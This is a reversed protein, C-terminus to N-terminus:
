NSFKKLCCCNFSIVGGGGGGVVGEGAGVAVPGEVGVVVVVLRRVRQGAVGAVGRTRGAAQDRRVLVVRELVRAVIRNRYRQVDVAARQFAAGLEMGVFAAPVDAVLALHREVRYLGRRM